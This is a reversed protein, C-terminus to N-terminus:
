PTVDTIGGYWNGARSGFMARRAARQQAPSYPYNPNLSADPAFAQTAPDYVMPDTTAPPLGAARLVNAGPMAAGMGGAGATGSGGAGPRKMAAYFVATNGLTSLGGQLNANSAQTLAGREIAARQVDARRRAAAAALAGTLVGQQGFRFRASQDALNTIGASQNADIRTLAGLLGGASVAGQAANAFSQQGAQGLRALATGEGPMPAYAGQRAMALTERDYATTSDQVRVRNAQRKQMAGSWLQQAGKVGGAITATIIPM